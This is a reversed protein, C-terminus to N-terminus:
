VTENEASLVAALYDIRFPSIASHDIACAQFAHEPTTVSGAALAASFTPQSGRYGFKGIDV